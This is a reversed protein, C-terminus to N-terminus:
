LLTESFEVHRGLLIYSFLSVTQSEGVELAFRLFSFKIIKEGSKRLAELRRISLTTKERKESVKGNTRHYNIFRRNESYFSASGVSATITKISGVTPTTIFVHFRSSMRRTM